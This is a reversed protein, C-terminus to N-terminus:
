IFALKNNNNNNNNLFLEKSYEYLINFDRENESHFQVIGQNGGNLEM